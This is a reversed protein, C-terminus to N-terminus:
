IRNITVFDKSYSYYGLSSLEFVFSLRHLFQSSSKVSASLPRQAAFLATRPAPFPYFDDLM